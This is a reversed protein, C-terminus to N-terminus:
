PDRYLYRACESWLDDLEDDADARAVFKILDEVIEAPLEGRRSLELARKWAKM